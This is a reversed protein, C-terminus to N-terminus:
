LVVIECIDAGASSFNVKTTGNALNIKRWPTTITDSSVINGKADIQDVTVPNDITKSLVLISNAGSEPTINWTDGALTSYTDPNNDFANLMIDVASATASYPLNDATVPNVFFERVTTWSTRKSDLRKIRVYRADIGNDDKWIIDYTEKLPSTLDTWTHGDASAQLVVNDFYDTDATSNRGQMVRINNVKRLTGLDLGIWDGDKQAEASTYHNTTDRDTMLRSQRTALNPYSGIPIHIAPTNGAVRGYFGIVMDELANEIFPQLKLTGSKHADYAKREEPTMLADVYGTWFISDNGARYQEILGIAEVGRKGLKGFETLWPKLEKMLLQNNCKAEMTAPVKEIKEFEALMAAAKEPTYENLSFTSTEWSEDRRYGNETDASHIAFTRYADTADPALDSLAREWNDIANYAPTNWTYDAVGYLALKSAEGHEMPNTGFGVVDEETITTDLGYVPGQLIFNRCYDSVPYNWWWFGPRRILGNFFDMTEHTLDSCVVDGTYFVEISKDLSRGYTALAGASDTKAWLRSYDTPCVVLNSVDGKKKVFERNLRNFLDVQKVPNRGEGDIDDFFLAFARVGLDYMMDFKNVLSDYDAENWRIDGGPHIAWIFDVHNRNAAEVLEKIKKAEPEPYPQRWHPTSHYPDDKPGFFYSNLKNKGYYDILSLRVDHSWPAGYFGEIVGRRSLSPWDNITMHPITGSSAIESTLIQRLTQLGYFAGAEDYGTITVGKKDVTLKYAEPRLEVGNKKAQKEGFDISLDIGGPVVEAITYAFKGKKDNIKKTAPLTYVSTRDIDISHPTPNIILGQHDIKKGPVPNLQQVESRQSSLDFAGEDAAATNPVTACIVATMAASIMTKMLNM